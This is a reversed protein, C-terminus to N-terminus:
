QEAAAQPFRMEQLMLLVPEVVLTVQSQATQHTTSMLQELASSLATEEAQVAKDVRVTLLRTLVLRATQVLVWCALVVVLVLRTLAVPAAVEVVEAELALQSTLLEEVMVVTALTAVREVAVVLPTM